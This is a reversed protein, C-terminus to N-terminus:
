TLDTLNRENQLQQRRSQNVVGAVFSPHGSSLVPLVIIKHHNRITTKTAHTRMDQEMVKFLQETFHHTQEAFTDLGTPGVWLTLLWMFGLVQRYKPANSVKPDCLLHSGLPIHRLNSQTATRAPSPCPGSNTATRSKGDNGGGGELNNRSM